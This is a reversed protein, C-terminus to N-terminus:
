TSSEKLMQSKALRNYRQPTAINPGHLAEREASVSNLSKASSLESRHPGRCCYSDDGFMKLTEQCNQAGQREEGDDRHKEKKESNTVPQYLFIGQLLGVRNRNQAAIKGSASHLRGLKIM